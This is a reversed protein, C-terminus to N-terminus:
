KCNSSREVDEEERNESSREHKDDEKSRDEKRKGESCADDNDGKNREDAGKESGDKDDSSSSSPESRAQTPIANIMDNTIGVNQFTEAFGGTVNANNYYKTPIILQRTVKDYKCDIALFEVVKGMKALANSIAKDNLELVHKCQFFLVLAPNNKLSKTFSTYIKSSVRRKEKHSVGKYDNYVVASVSGKELNDAISIVQSTYPIWETRPAGKSLASLSTLLKSTSGNKMTKHHKHKKNRGKFRHKVVGM